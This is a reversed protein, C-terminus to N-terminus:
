NILFTCPYKSNISCRNRSSIRVTMLDQLGSEGVKSAVREKFVVVKENM